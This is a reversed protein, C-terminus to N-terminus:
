TAYHAGLFRNRCIYPCDSIAIKRVFVAAMSCDVLEVFTPSGTPQLKHIASSWSM